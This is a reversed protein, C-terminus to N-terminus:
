RPEERLWRTYVIEDPRAASSRRFGWTTGHTMLYENVEDKTLAYELLGLQHGPFQVVESGLVLNQNSRMKMLQTKIARMGDRKREFLFEAASYAAAGLTGFDLSQADTRPRVERQAKPLYLVPGERVFNLGYQRAREVAANRVVEGTQGSLVGGGTIVIGVDELDHLLVLFDGLYTGLTEACSTAIDAAEQLKGEVRRRKEDNKTRDLLDDGTLQLLRQLRVDGHHEIERKLENAANRGLARVYLELLWFLEPEAEEGKEYVRRIVEADVGEVAGRSAFGKIGCEKRLSEFSEESFNKKRAELISGLELSELDPVRFLTSARRKVLAPMTRTSLYHNSIGIPFTRDTPAGLDLLIKGWEYLGPSLRGGSFIAGATGTGLKVVALCSQGEHRRRAEASDLLTHVAGVGEASGDNVLAVCPKIGLVSDCADKFAQVINLKLIDGISNEKINATLPPFNRFIGSTAAIRNARVAGPWSLGVAVINRARAGPCVRNLNSSITSALRFAFSEAPNKEKSDSATLIKFVSGRSKLSQADPLFEYIRFKTLTGGIDVGVFLYPPSSGPAVSPLYRGLAERLNTIPISRLTLPQLDSLRQVNSSRVTNYQKLYSELFIEYGNEVNAKEIREKWDRASLAGPTLPEEGGELGLSELDVDCTSFGKSMARNLVVAHIYHAICDVLYLHDKRDKRLGLPVHLVVPEPESDFVIPVSLCSGPRLRYVVNLMRRILPFPIYYRQDRLRHDELRFLKVTREFLHVFLDGATIGVKPPSLPAEEAPGSGFLLAEAALEDNLSVEVVCEPKAGARFNPINVPQVQFYSALAKSGEVACGVYRALIERLNNDEIQTRDFSFMTVSNPDFEDPLSLDPSKEAVCREVLRKFKEMKEEPVDLGTSFGWTWAIENGEKAEFIERVSKEITMAAHSCIEELQGDRVGHDRLIACLRKRSRFFAPLKPLSVPQDEGVLGEICEPTLKFWSAEEWPRDVSANILLDEIRDNAGSGPLRHNRAEELFGMVQLAKKIVDLSLDPTQVVEEAIALFKSDGSHRALQGYGSQCRILLAMFDLIKEEINPWQNKLEGKARGASYAEWFVPLHCECQSRAVAAVILLPCSYFWPAAGSRPIVTERLDHVAQGLATVTSKLAAVKNQPRTQQASSDEALPDVFLAELAQLMRFTRAFTREMQNTRYLEFLSPSVNELRQRQARRCLLDRWDNIEAHIKTQASVELYEIYSDAVGVKRYGVPCSDPSQRRVIFPLMSDLKGEKIEQVVTQPAPRIEVQNAM